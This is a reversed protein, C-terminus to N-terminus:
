SGDGDSTSDNKLEMPEPKVEATLGAVGEPVPDAPEPLVPVPLPLKKFSM